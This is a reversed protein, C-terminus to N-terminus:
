RLDRKIGNVFKALREKKALKPASVRFEHLIM